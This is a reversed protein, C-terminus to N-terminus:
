IHKDKIKGKYVTFSQEKAYIYANDYCDVEHLYWVENDHLHYQITNLTDKIAKASKKSVSHVSSANYLYEKGKISKALVLM